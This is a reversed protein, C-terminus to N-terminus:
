ISTGAYRIINKSVNSMKVNEINNIPVWSYGNNLANKSSMHLAYVLAISRSNTDSDKMHEDDLVGVLKPSAELWRGTINMSDRMMGEVISFSTPSNEGMEEILIDDDKLLVFSNTYKDMDVAFAILYVFVKM